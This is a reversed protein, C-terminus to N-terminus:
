YTSGASGRVANPIVPCYHGTMGLLLPPIQQERTAFTARFIAVLSFFPIRLFLGCSPVM